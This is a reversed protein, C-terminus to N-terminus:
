ACGSRAPNATNRAPSSSSLVGHLAQRTATVDTDVM